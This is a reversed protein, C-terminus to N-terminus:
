FMKGYVTCLATIFKSVTKEQSAVASWQIKYFYIDGEMPVIPRFYQSEGTEKKWSMNKLISLQTIGYQYM